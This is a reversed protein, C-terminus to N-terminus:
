VSGAIIEYKDDKIAKLTGKEDIKIDCCTTHQTHRSYFM